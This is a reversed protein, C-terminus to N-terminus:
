RNATFAEANGTRTDTWLVRPLNNRGMSLGTYDGIFAGGFGDLAPDSSETTARKAPKFSLGGDFSRSCSMDLWNMANWSQDYYCIGIIGSRSVGMWQFFQDDQPRSNVRSPTSWTLGRDTSRVLMIDANGSAYDAYTVYVTGAIPDVAATPFSNVRFSNGPLPSPLGTLTAAQVPTGWTGGGDFSRNVWIRASDECPSCFSAYVTGDPGVAPSAGEVEVQNGSVRVPRSWTQGGDTSSAIYSRAVAFGSTFRTWQVYLSNSFPSSPSLDITLMEKDQFDSATLSQVIAVPVSWTQGGDTSSSVLLGSREFDRDFALCVYHFTGDRDAYVAPDGAAEYDFPGGNGVTIGDIIGASWTLGGDGSRAYGCNVDNNGATRYDNAGGVIMNGDPLSVAITTENQAALDQTTDVNAINPTADIAVGTPRGHVRPNFVVVGSLSSTMPDFSDAAHGFPATLAVLMTLITLKWPM